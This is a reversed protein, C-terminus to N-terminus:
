LWFLSELLSVCTLSLLVDNRNCLNTLFNLLLRPHRVDARTVSVTQVAAISYLRRSICLTAAPIGIGAGLLLKTALLM